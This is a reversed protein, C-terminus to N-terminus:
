STTLLRDLKNASDMLPLLCIRYGLIVLQVAVNLYRDTSTMLPLLSVTRFLDNNM